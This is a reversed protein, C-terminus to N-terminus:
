IQIMHEMDLDSVHGDVAEIIMDVYRCKATYEGGLYQAVLGYDLNYHVACTDMM